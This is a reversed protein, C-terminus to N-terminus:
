GNADSGTIAYRVLALKRRMMELAAGFRQVNEASKGIEADRDVGNGDLTNPRSTDTFEEANDDILSGTRTDRMAAEDANTLFGEFTMDRRQYNPTDANVINSTLLDQRRSRLDLSAELMRTTDDFRIM